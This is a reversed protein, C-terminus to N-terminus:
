LMTKYKISNIGLGEIDNLMKMFNVNQHNMQKSQCSEENNINVTM